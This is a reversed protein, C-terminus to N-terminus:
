ADSGELEIKASSADGDLAVSNDRRGVITPRSASGSLAVRHARRAKALSPVYLVNPNTLLPAIMQNVDVMIAISPDYVLQEANQLLPVLLGRSGRTVTPNFVHTVDNEVYLPPQLGNSAELSPALPAAGSDVLPPVVVELDNYLAPPYAVAVGDLLAPSLETGPAAGSVLAPPIPASGGAVLPATLAVGGVSLAPVLLTTGTGLLPMELAAVAHVTPPYLFSEGVVPPALTRSGAVLAPVLPASGNVLMPAVLAVDASELFVVFLPSKKNDVSAAGFPDSPGDSFLDTNYRAGGASNQLFWNFNGDSHLAIWLTTGALVALPTELAYTNVGVAVATKTISTALLAGPVGGSDAYVVMRTNVTKASSASTQVATILGSDVMVITSAYKLNSTVTGGPGGGGGNGQGKVRQMAPPYLADADTLLSPFLVGGGDFTPAYLADADTLLPPTISIRSVAAPSFFTNANVLLPPALIGVSQITPAYLADVDTLLPPALVVAGPVFDHSFFGNTSALLPPTLLQDQTIVPGYFSDNEDLLPPSLTVAGPTLSPDHLVSANILLPPVLVIEGTTVLPDYIVNTNTLLPPAVVVGGSLLTPDYVVNVNTLLSVDLNSSQLASAIPYGGPGLRTFSTM